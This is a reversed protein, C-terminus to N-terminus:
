PLDTYPARHRPREQRQEELLAREVPPVDRDGPDRYGQLLVRERLPYVNHSLARLIAQYRRLDKRRPVKRTDVLEYLSFTLKGNTPMGGRRDILKLVAVFVDQDLAGPLEYDRSATVRWVQILRQGDGTVIATRSESVGEERNRGKIQWLPAGEVNIEVPIVSSEEGEPIEFLTMEGVHPHEDRM